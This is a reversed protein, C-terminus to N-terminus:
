NPRPGLGQDSAGKVIAASSTMMGSLPEPHLSNICNKTKILRKAFGCISITNGRPKPLTSPKVPCREIGTSLALLDVVRVSLSTAIRKYDVRLNPM